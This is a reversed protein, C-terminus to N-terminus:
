GDTLVEIRESPDTPSEPVAPPDRAMAEDVHDTPHEYAHDPMTEAVGANTPVAVACGHAAAEIPMLGLPEFRDPRPFVFCKTQQYLARLQRYSFHNALLVNYHRRLTEVAGNEKRGHLMVDIPRDGGRDTGDIYWTPYVPRTPEGDRGLTEDSLEQATAKSPAWFEDAGTAYNTRCYAITPVDLPRLAAHFAQDWSLVVDPDLRRVVDRLATEDWDTAHWTADPHIDHHRQLRDVGWSDTGHAIDVSADVYDALALLARARGGGYASHSAVLLSPM